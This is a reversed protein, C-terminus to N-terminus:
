RIEIEAERSWKWERVPALVKLEPALSHIAVEFCVQDNGKGNVVM